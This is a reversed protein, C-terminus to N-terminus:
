KTHGRFGLGLVASALGRLVQDLGAAGPASDASPTIVFRRNCLRDIASTACTLSILLITSITILVSVEAKV